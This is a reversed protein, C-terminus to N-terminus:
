ANKSLSMIWNHVEETTEIHKPLVTEGTMKERMEEILFDYNYDLFSLQYSSITKEYHSIIPTPFSNNIKHALYADDLHFFTRM